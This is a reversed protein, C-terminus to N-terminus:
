MRAHFRHHVHLSVELVKHHGIDHNNRVVKICEVKVINVIMNLM